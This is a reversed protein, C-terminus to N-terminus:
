THHPLLASDQYNHKNGGSVSDLSRNWQKNEAQRESPYWVDHFCLVYLLIVSVLISFIVVSRTSDKRMTKLGYRKSVPDFTGEM